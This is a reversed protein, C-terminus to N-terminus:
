SKKIFDYNSYECLESFGIKKYIHNSVPNQKDAFLACYELEKDLISECTSYVLSQAYGKKRFKEPTFVYGLSVGRKHPRELFVMSVPEKDIWLYAHHSNIMDDVHKNIFSQNEYQLGLEEHFLEAWQVLLTTHQKTANVMYGTSLKIPRINKLISLNMKMKMSAKELSNEVWLDAFRTSIQTKANVGTVMIKKKQLTKILLKLSGDEPQEEAYLLLPWPPTIFAVLDIREHNSISVLFPNTQYHLFDKRIVSTLGIMLENEYPRSFRTELIELFDQPNLYDQIIM